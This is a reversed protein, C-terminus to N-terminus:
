DLHTSLSQDSNRTAAHLSPTNAPFPSFIVRTRTQPQTTVATSCRRPNCTRGLCPGFQSSQSACHVPIFNKANFLGGGIAAFVFRYKMDPFRNILFFLHVNRRTGLQWTELPPGTCTGVHAPSTCTASKCGEAGGPAGQWIVDM